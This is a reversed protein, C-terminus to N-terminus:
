DLKIEVLVVPHSTFVISNFSFSKIENSKIQFSEQDSVVIVDIYAQIIWVSGFNVGKFHITRMAKNKDKVGKASM